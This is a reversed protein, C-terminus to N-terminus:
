DEKTTPKLGAKWDRIVKRIILWATLGGIIFSFFASMGLFIPAANVVFKLFLTIGTPVVGLLPKNHLITIMANM